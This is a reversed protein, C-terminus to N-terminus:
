MLPCCHDTPSWVVMQYRLAARVWLASVEAQGVAGREWPCCEDAQLNVTLFLLLKPVM